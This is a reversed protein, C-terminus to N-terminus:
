LDVCATEVDADEMHPSSKLVHLGQCHTLSGKTITAVSHMDHGKLAEAYPCFPMYLADVEVAEQDKRVM